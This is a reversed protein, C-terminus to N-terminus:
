QSMFDTSNQNKQKYIEAHSKNEKAKTYKKEKKGNLILLSRKRRSRPKVSKNQLQMTRM